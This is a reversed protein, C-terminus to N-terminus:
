GTRKRGQLAEYSKRKMAARFVSYRIKTMHQARMKDACTPCLRQVDDLTMWPDIPIPPQVFGQM